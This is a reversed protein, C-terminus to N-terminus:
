RLRASCQVLGFVTSLQWVNVAFKRFCSLFYLSSHFDQRRVPSAIPTSRGPSPEKRHDHRSSYFFFFFFFFSLYGKGANLTFLLDLCAHTDVGHHWGFLPKEFFGALFVTRHNELRPFPAWLWKPYFYQPIWPFVRRSDNLFLSEPSRSGNLTKEWFYDFVKREFISEMM